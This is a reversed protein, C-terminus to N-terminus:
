SGRHHSHSTTAAGRCHIGIILLALGDRDRVGDSQSVTSQM